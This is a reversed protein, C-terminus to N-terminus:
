SYNTFDQKSAQIKNQMVLEHLMDLSVIETVYEKGRRWRFRIGHSGNALIVPEGIPIKKEPSYILFSNGM